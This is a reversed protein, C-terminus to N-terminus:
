RIRVFPWMAYTDRNAGNQLYPFQPGLLLSSSPARYAQFSDKPLYLCSAVAETQTLRPTKCPLSCSTSLGMRVTHIWYGHVGEPLVWLTCPPGHPASTFQFHDRIECDILFYLPTLSCILVIRSLTM